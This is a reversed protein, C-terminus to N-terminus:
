RVVVRPLRDKVRRAFVVRYGLRRDNRRLVYLFRGRRPIDVRAIRLVVLLLFRLPISDQDFVLEVPAEIGIVVAWDAYTLPFAVPTKKNQGVAMSRVVGDVWAVDWSAPRVERMQKM